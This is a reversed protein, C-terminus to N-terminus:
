ELAVINQLCEFLIDLNSPDQCGVLNVKGTHFIIFTGLTVKIFLGPFKERNYRVKYINKARNLIKMQDIEKRFDFTATINDIQQNVVTLNLNNFIQEKLIDISQYISQINPIKTINIHTILCNKSKFFIYVFQYRIIVYNNKTVFPICEHELQNLVSNLSIQETKLSIKINRIEFM